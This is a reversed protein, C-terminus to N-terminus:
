DHSRRNTDTRVLFWRYRYRFARKKTFKHRRGRKPVHIQVGKKATSSLGEFTIRAATTPRLSASGNANALLPCSIIIIISQY